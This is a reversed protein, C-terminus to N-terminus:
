KSRESGPTNVIPFKFDSSPSNIVPGKRALEVIKNNYNKKGRSYQEELLTKFRTFKFLLEQREEEKMNDCNLLLTTYIVDEITKFIKDLLDNDIMTVRFEKGLYRVKVSDTEADILDIQLASGVKFNWGWQTLEETTPKDKEYLNKLYDEFKVQQENKKNEM